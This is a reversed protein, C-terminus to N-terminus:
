RMITLHTVLVLVLTGLALNVLSFEAAGVFDLGWVVIYSFVFSLVVNLVLLVRPDGESAALPDPEDDAAMGM